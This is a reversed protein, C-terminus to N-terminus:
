MPLSPKQKADSQLCLLRLSLHKKRNGLLEFSNLFHSCKLLNFESMSMFTIAMQLCFNTFRVTDNSLFSSTGSLPRIARFSCTRNEHFNNLQRYWCLYEADIESKFKLPRPWLELYIKLDYYNSRPKLYRWLIQCDSLYRTVPHSPLTTTPREVRSRSTSGPLRYDTWGEM